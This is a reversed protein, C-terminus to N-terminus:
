MPKEQAERLHSPSGSNRHLSVSFAREIEAWRDRAPGRGVAEGPRPSPIEGVDAPRSESESQRESRIVDLM